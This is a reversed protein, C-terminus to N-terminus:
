INKGAIRGFVICETIACSGLRSAKLMDEYMNQKSDEIGWKKQMTTQPAAFGGDSIISNGGPKKMKEIIKVNKGLLKAQIAATLGAFGSGIVLIDVHEHWNNMADELELNDIFYRNVEFVGKEYFLIIFM